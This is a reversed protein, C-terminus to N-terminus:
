RKQEMQVSFDLTRMLTMAFCRRNFQLSRVETLHM